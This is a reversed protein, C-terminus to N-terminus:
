SFSTDKCAAYATSKMGNYLLRFFRFFKVPLDSLEEAFMWFQYKFRCWITSLPDFIQNDSAFM